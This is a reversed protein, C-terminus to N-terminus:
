GLLDLQAGPEGREAAAARAEARGQLASRVLEAGEHVDASLEGLPDVPWVATPQELMAPNVEDEGPEEAWQEPAHVAAVETLFDSVARPKDGAAGWRH